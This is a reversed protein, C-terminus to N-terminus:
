GLRAIAFERGQEAIREAMKDREELVVKREETVNGAHEELSGTFFSM